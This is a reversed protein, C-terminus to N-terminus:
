YWGGYNINEPDIKTGAKGEDGYNLSSQCTLGSTNLCIVDIQPSLYTNM